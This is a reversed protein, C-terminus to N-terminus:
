YFYRAFINLWDTLKNYMILKSIVFYNKDNIADILINKIEDDNKSNFSNNVRNYWFQVNECKAKVFKNIQCQNMISYYDLNFLIKDLADYYGTYIQEPISPYYKDEQIFKPPIYEVEEDSEPLYELEEDSYEDIDYDNYSM